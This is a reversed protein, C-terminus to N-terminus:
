RRRFRWGPRANEVMMMEAINEQTLVGLPRGTLDIVVEARAGRQRLRTFAAVLPETALVPESPRMVDGVSTTHGNNSLGRIMADRDLIGALRSQADLVPFEKQPSSLLADVAAAIPQNVNLLLPSAEMADRVILDSAFGAFSASQEESAAAFYIFVGVLMLIPNYLLGLVVFLAAFGQGIRAALATARSSGMKMALVARLMRGGDMPFAPILNFLVLTVNVIFLREALTATEFGATTYSSLSIGFVVMLLLAIAVNVLPGAIAVLLEQRPQEPIKELSAIGGIPSLIVEPTRIGFRRAMAIHGFEHLTVCLFVLILFVVADVAAAMGGSLYYSAGIWALFLLFTIHLRVSTGAIHGITLSAGM